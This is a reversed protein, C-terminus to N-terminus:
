WSGGEQRLAREIKDWETVYDDRVRLKPAEVRTGRGVLFGVTTGLVIGAIFAWETPTM